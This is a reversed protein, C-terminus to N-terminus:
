VAGELTLNMNSYTTYKIVNKFSAYRGFVATIGYPGGVWVIPKQRLEFLRAQLYDIQRNDVLVDCTMKKAYPRLVTNSTGDFNFTTSSYDKGETSLDMLTPGFEDTPGIACMGCRATGGIKRLNVTILANAYPLMALTVFYDRRKIRKFAWNFFSSESNSELLVSTERYVVGEVQDVVSVRVEDAYTNGIYFGQSIAEPSVVILIEDAAVAQTNNYQDLMAWRNTAGRPTWAGADTLARGKNAALISEFLNHTAPDHVIAGKGYTATVDYNPETIPVNSYVLGAGAGIVDAARTVPASTIVDAARTTAGGSTKIPSTVRDRELQPLGIRLTFDVMSGNAITVGIYGGVKTVAANTLTRSREVRQTRLPASTPVPRSYGEGALYTSGSYEEIVYYNSTIGASSGGVLRIFASSAWVQGQVAATPYDFGDVFISVNGTNTTTGALQVDIYSIGDETGTGVVSASIGTVGMALLWYNPMAGGNALPGVVAGTMTNNRIYNTAAAEWLRYPAVSLDAPNYTVREVNAAAAQLVGTSDWCTSTSARGTFVAATKISSTLRDRELQPLGFRLTLNVNQGANFTFFILPRVFATTAGKLTIAKSIRTLASQVDPKINVDNSNLYTSAADFEQLTLLLGLPLAGDVVKLYLSEVWVQGLAAVAGNPTDFAVVINNAASAVGSWNMDIYDIGNEVGTGIVRQSIGFVVAGSSSWNTPLVGPAGAAAGQMTNNRIANTAEKEVLAYPAKTLDAPDYTVALTNVPVQVLAGTRDYACKPSARTFAVDGLAVPDVIIM